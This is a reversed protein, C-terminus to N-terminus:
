ENTRLAKKRGSSKEQAKEVYVSLNDTYLFLKTEEMKIQIDKIEVEQKIESHQTLLLINLPLPWLLCKRGLSLPFVNLTLGILM